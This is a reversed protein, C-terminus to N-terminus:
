HSVEFARNTYNVIVGFVVTYIAIGVLITLYKLNSGGWNFFNLYTSFKFLFNGLLALFLGAVAGFIFMKKTTKSKDWDKGINVAIVNLIGYLIPIIVPIWKYAQRNFADQAIYPQTYASNLYLFPLVVVPISSGIIFAKFNQM